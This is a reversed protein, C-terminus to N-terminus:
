RQTTSVKEMTRALTKADDLALRKAWVGALANGILVISSHTRLDEAYLGLKYLIWNVNAKEGTLLTWERDLGRREAFQRLREPTDNDPDVTIAVFRANKVVEQPLYSRARSLNEVVMPCFGPCDTYISSIVVLRDKIVDDYFRLTRGSQDSLELNPFYASAENAVRGDDLLSAITDASDVGSVRTWQGKKDDGIIVIPAHDAIAGGGVNFADLLIKVDAPDGTVFSWGAKPEFPEAFAKMRSPSDSAPDLTITILSVDHGLAAGLKDQVARFTATLMPCVTRCQAYVFNIAAKRGKVLDTYFKLRRGEQDIVAVDPIGSKLRAFQDDRSLSPAEQGTVTLPAFASAVFGVALSAFLGIVARRAMM